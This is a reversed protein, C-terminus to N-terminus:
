DHVSAMVLMRKERAWFARKETEESKAEEEPPKKQMGRVVMWGRAIREPGLGVVITLSTRVCVVWFVQELLM